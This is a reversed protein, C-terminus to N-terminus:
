ELSVSLDNEGNMYNEVYDSKKPYIDDDVIDITNSGWLPRRISPALPNLFGQNLFGEKEEPARAVEGKKKEM